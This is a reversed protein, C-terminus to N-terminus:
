GHRLDEAIEDLVQGSLVDPLKRAAEALADAKIQGILAAIQPDSYGRNIMATRMDTVTPTYEEAM